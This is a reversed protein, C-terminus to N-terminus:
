EGTVLPNKYFISDNAADEIELITEGKITHNCFAIECPSEVVNGKGVVPYQKKDDVLTISAIPTQCIESALYVMNDLEKERALNLDLYSKVTDLRHSEM